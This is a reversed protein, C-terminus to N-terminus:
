DTLQVKASQGNRIATDANRANAAAQAALAIASPNAAQHIKPQELLNHKGTGTGNVECVDSCYALVRGDNTSVVRTTKLWSNEPNEFVTAKDKQDFIVQKTCEPGDCIITRIATDSISM